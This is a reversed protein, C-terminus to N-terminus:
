LSKLEDWVETTIPKNDNKGKIQGGCPIARPTMKVIYKDKPHAALLSVLTLRM